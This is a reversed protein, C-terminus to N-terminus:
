LKTFVWHEVYSHDGNSNLANIDTINLELKNMWLGAIDFTKFDQFVLSSKSSGEKWSLTKNDLKFTYNLGNTAVEELYSYKSSTSDTITLTANITGIYTNSVTDTGRTETYKGQTLTRIVVSINGAPDVVHDQIQLEQLKWVGSLRTSRKYISVIPDNEGKKICGTFITTLFLLLLSLRALRM